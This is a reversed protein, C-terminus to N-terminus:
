TITEPAFSSPFFFRALLTGDPGLLPPSFLSSSVLSVTVYAASRPSSPLITNRAPSVGLVFICYSFERPHPIPHGALARTLSFVLFLTSAFSFLFFSILARSLFVVVSSSFLYPFQTSPRGGISLPPIVTFSLFPLSFWYLFSSRIEPTLGHFCFFFAARATGVTRLRLSLLPFRVFLAAKTPPACSPPVTKFGM